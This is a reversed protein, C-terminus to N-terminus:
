RARAGDGELGAREAHEPPDASGLRALRSAPAAAPGAPSIEVVAPDFQTGAAQELRRFAEEVSLADRYPRDTTM